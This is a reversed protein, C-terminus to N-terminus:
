IMVNIPTKSGFSCGQITLQVSEGGRQRGSWDFALGGIHELGKSTALNGDM